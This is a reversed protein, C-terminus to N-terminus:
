RAAAIGAVSATFRNLSSLASLSGFNQGLQPAGTVFVDAFNQSDHPTRSVPSHAAHCLM